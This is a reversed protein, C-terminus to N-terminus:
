SAMGEQIAYWFLRKELTTLDNSLFESNGLALCYRGHIFGEGRDVIGLNAQWHSRDVRGYCIFAENHSFDGGFFDSGDFLITTKPLLDPDYVAKIIESETDAAGSWDGSSVEHKHRLICGAVTLGSPTLLTRFHEPIDSHM